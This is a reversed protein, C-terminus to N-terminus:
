VVLQRLRSGTGGRSPVPLSGDPKHCRRRYCRFPSGHRVLAIGLGAEGENQTLRDSVHPGVKGLIHLFLDEFVRDDGPMLAFAVFAQALLEGLEQVVM